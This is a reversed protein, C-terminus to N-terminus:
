FNETVQYHTSHTFSSATYAYEIEKTWNNFSIADVATTGGGSVAFENYYSGQLRGGNTDGRKKPLDIPSQYKGEGCTTPPGDTSIEGTM